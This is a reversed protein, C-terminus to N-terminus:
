QATETIKRVAEGIERLQRVVDDLVEDYEVGTKLYIPVLVRGGDVRFKTQAVVETLNFDIHGRHVFWLPTDGGAWLEHDLGFRSEQEMDSFKFYRGYGYGLSSSGLGSTNMWGEPVGRALVADDVLRAFGKVRRASAPGLEESHLPLFADEDQRQALGRLQVIEATTEPNEAVAMMRNLINIWSALMLYRETGSVRAVPMRDSASVSELPIGGSSVMDNIAVWLTNIRVDPAIFLLASRGSEPLQKLYANPQNDMLGAWFKSEVIIRKENARDFCVMDPISGDEATVQTEVRAIDAADIGVLDALSNRSAASKRLIYALAETAADEVGYTLKPVLYALLTDNDAM